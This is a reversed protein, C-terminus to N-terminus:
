DPATGGLERGPAKGKPNQLWQGLREGNVEMRVVDLEGHEYDAIMMRMGPGDPQVFILSTEGNRERERVFPEWGEGLTETMLADLGDGDPIRVHEFEAVKMGEVGDRTVVRACLSVLGMLPIRQAHAQYRQEVASVVADFDPRAPRAALPLLAAAGVVVGVPMAVLAISRM